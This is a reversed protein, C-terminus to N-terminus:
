RSRCPHHSCQSSRLADAGGRPRRCGWASLAGPTSRSRGVFRMGVINRRWVRRNRGFWGLTREVVWRRPLVHFGSPIQPPEQGPRVWFGHNGTWWHKTIALEWGLHEALWDKLGRYASDGWM